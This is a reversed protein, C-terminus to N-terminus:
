PLAASEERSFDSRAHRRQKGYPVFFLGCATFIYLLILPLIQYRYVSPSAFINFCANAGLYIAAVRLCDTFVPYRRRLGPQLL